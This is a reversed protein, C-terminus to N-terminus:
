DNANEEYFSSLYILSNGISYSGVFFLSAFLLNVQEGTVLFEKMFLLLVGINGFVLLSKGSELLVNKM